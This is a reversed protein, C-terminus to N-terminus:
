DAYVGTDDWWAKIEDGVIDWKAERAKIVDTYNTILDDVGRVDTGGTTRSISDAVGFLNDVFKKSPGVIQPMQDVNIVTGDKLTKKGKFMEESTVIAGKANSGQYGGKYYADDIQKARRNIVARDVAKQTMDLLDQESVTIYSKADGKSIIVQYTDPSVQKWDVDTGTWDLRTRTESLRETGDESFGTSIVDDYTSWGENNVFQDKKNAEIHFFLANAIIGPKENPLVANANGKLLAMDQAVVNVLATPIEVNGNYRFGPNVPGADHRSNAKLHARIEDEDEGRSLFYNIMNIHDEIQSPAVIVDTLIDRALAANAKLADKDQGPIRFMGGESFDNVDLGIIEDGYQDAKNLSYALSLARFTPNKQATQWLVSKKKKDGGLVQQLYPMMDAHNIQGSRMNQVLGDIQKTVIGTIEKDGANLGLIKSVRDLSVPHTAPDNDFLSTLETSVDNKAYEKIQQKQSETLSTGTASQTKKIADVASMESIGGRRYATTHSTFMITDVLVGLNKKLSLTSNDDFDMVLGAGDSRELLDLEKKLKTYRAEPPLIGSEKLSAITSDKVKTMMTQAITSNEYIEAERTTMGKTATAIKTNMATTEEKSLKMNQATKQKNFEKDYTDAYVQYDAPYTLALQKVKNDVLGVFATLKAKNNLTPQSVKFNEFSKSLPIAAATDNNLETVVANGAAAENNASVVSNEEANHRGISDLAYATRQAKYAQQYASSKGELNLSDSYLGDVHMAAMQGGTLPKNTDFGAKVKTNVAAVNNDYDQRAQVSARMKDSAIHEQGSENQKILQTTAKVANIFNNASDSVEEQVPRVFGLDVFRSDAGKVEALETEISSDIIQKRQEKM